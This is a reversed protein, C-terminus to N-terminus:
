SEFQYTRRELRLHGNAQVHLVDPKFNDIKDLAKKMAFISRPDRIRPLFFTDFKVKESLYAKFSKRTNSPVLLMVDCYDAMANALDLVTNEIFGTTFLVVRM